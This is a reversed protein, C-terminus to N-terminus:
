NYTVEILISGTHEGLSTINSEAHGPIASVRVLFDHRKAAGSGDSPNTYSTGTGLIINTAANPLGNLTHNGIIAQFVVSSGAAGELNARTASALGQLSASISGVATTGFCHIQLTQDSAVTYTTSDQTISGIDIALDGVSCGNTPATVTLSTTISGTADQAMALGPLSLLMAGATLMHKYNM